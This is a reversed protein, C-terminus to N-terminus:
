RRGRARARAKNAPVSSARANAGMKEMVKVLIDYLDEERFKDNDDNLRENLRRISDPQLVRDLFEEGAWLADATSARRSTSAILRRMVEPFKKPRIIKYIEGDIEFAITREAEPTDDEDDRDPTTFVLDPDVVVTGEIPEDDVLEAEAPVEDAEAPPNRKTPKTSRVRAPANGM